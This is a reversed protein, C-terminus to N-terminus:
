VIHADVTFFAWNSYGSWATLVLYAEIAWSGSQDLDGAIMTYQLKGDAGTTVFTAPHTIVSNDPKRFLFNKTSASSIDVVSGSTADTITIQIVTGVDGVHLIPISM